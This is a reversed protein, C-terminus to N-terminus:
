DKCTDPFTCIVPLGLQAEIDDSTKLRNDISELIFPTSLGAFTGFFISLLLLLMRNPSVPQEPRTPESAVIVNALNRRTKEAFIRADETKNSYRLYTKKYIAVQRQLEQLVNEKQNFRNAEGQLTAILNRLSEIKIKMSELELEDTKVAKSIERRIEHRLMDIQSNISTYERSNETFTKSLESRKILLPVIGDELAIIAPIQRMEKTLHLGNPDDTLRKKLLSIKGQSEAYLIEILKLENLLTTRLDINAQNQFDLNVINEEGEFTKLAKEAEGLKARYERTQDNYFVLGEEQTFVQKRHQLYFKLIKSLVVQSKQAIEAGLSVTIVNSDVVPEITLSGKLFAAKAELESASPPVLKLTGLLLRFGRKIFTVIHQLLSKETSTLGMGSSGFAKVTDMIVSDSGILEMETSLDNLSVSIIRNEDIGASIVEGENTKPLVLIEATSEYTPTVTYAYFMVLGVILFFVFIAQRQWFFCIRLFDRSSQLKTIAM